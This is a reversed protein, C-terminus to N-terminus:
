NAYEAMTFPSGQQQQQQPQQPQSQLGLHQPMSLAMSMHVDQGHGHGHVHGHGFAMLAQYQQFQQQQQQQQQHHHHLMHQSHAALGQVMHHQKGVPSVAKVSTAAATTTPTAGEYRSRRRIVNRKLSIPRHIHHLKYYLGCANCLIEGADDKRWLPTLTTRCNTCMPQVNSGGTTSTTSAPFPVPRSSRAAANPHSSSSSDSSTTSSGPSSVIPGDTPSSVSSVDLSASDESSVSGSREGQYLSGDSSQKLDKLGLTAGGGRIGMGPQGQQQLHKPRHMAHLKHYLGCANCLPENDASRRWLPTVTVGCNQCRVGLGAAAKIAAKSPKRAKSVKISKFGVAQAHTLRQLHPPIPNNFHHPHHLHHLLLGDSVRRLQQQEDTLPTPSTPSSPHLTPMSNSRNSFLTAASFPTEDMPSTPTLPSRLASVSPVQPIPQPSSSLSTVLDHRGLGVPSPTSSPTEPPSIMGAGVSSQQQQQFQSPNLFLSKPKLVSSPTATTSSMHQHQFSPRQIRQQQQLQFQQQISPQPLNTQISHANGPLAQTAATLCSAPSSPWASLADPNQQHIRYEQFQAFGNSPSPSSSVTPVFPLRSSLASGAASAGVTNSSSTNNTNTNSTSNHNNNNNNNYLSTSYPLFANNGTNNTHSLPLSINNALSLSLWDSAPQISNLNTFIDRNDLLLPMSHNVAIMGNNNNNNNTNHPTLPSPTCASMYPNSTIITMPTTPTLVEHEATSFLSYSSTINPTPTSTSTSLSASSSSHKNTSSTNSSFCYDDSLFPMELITTSGVSSSSITATTTAGPVTPVVTTASYENLM